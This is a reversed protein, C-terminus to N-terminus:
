IMIAQDMVTLPNKSINSKVDSDAINVEQSGHSFVLCKKYSHTDFKFVAFIWSGLCNIHKDFSFFSGLWTFLIFNSFHIDNKSEQIPYYFSLLVM